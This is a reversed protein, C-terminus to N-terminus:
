SLSFNIEIQHIASLTFYFEKTKKEEKVFFTIFPFYLLIAFDNMSIFLKTSELYLNGFSSSCM